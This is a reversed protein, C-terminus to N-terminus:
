FDGAAVISLIAFDSIFKYIIPSVIGLFAFRRIVFGFNNKKEVLMKIIYVLMLTYGFALFGQYTGLMLIFSLAGLLLNKIGPKLVNSVGLITLLTAVPYIFSIWNYEFGIAYAPFSILVAAVLFKQMATQAGLLKAFLLGVRPINDFLVFGSLLSFVNFSINRFVILFM